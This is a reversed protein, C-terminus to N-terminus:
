DNYVDSLSCFNLSMFTKTYVIMKTHQLDKQTSLRSRPACMGREKTVSESHVTGVAAGRLGKTSGEMLIDTLCETCSQRTYPSIVGLCQARLICSLFACQAGWAHLKREIGAGYSM